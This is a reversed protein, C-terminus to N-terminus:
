STDFVGPETSWNITKILPIFGWTEKEVIRSVDALKLSERSKQKGHVTAVLTDYTNM